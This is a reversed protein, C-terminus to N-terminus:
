ITRIGLLGRPDSVADVYIDADKAAAIFADRAEQVTTNGDLADACVTRALVYAPGQQNVRWEAMLFADAEKLSRITRLKGPSASEVTVPKFHINEMLCFRLDPL